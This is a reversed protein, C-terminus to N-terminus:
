RPLYRDGFEKRAIKTYKLIFETKANTYEDRNHTYQEKLEQKLKGYEEAIEKHILLYDRFYLENWDGLFRVHLHFVKEAFGHPTYGKNFSMNLDTKNQLSMLIWDANSLKYKIQEIDSNRDIELLIDVTPKAILGEIASSGIHNIRKINNKGIINVIEDKEVLYWEKYSPSHEKLIIPFLKWLEELSMESLAKGM